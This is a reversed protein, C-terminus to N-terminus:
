QLSILIPLAIDSREYILNIKAKDLLITNREKESHVQQLIATYGEMEFEYLEKANEYNFTTNNPQGNLADTLDKQISNNESSKESNSENDDIKFLNNLTM